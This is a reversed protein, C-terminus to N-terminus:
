PTAVIRFNGPPAPIRAISFRDIRTGADDGGRMIIQHSGPTLNFVKQGPVKATSSESGRWTVIRNTFAQSTPIDWIMTPGTPEADVNVALSSAHDPSSVTVVIVYGGPQSIAIDYVARGSSALNTGATQFVYGNTVSFPPTILGAEAEIAVNGQAWASFSLTILASIIVHLSVSKM